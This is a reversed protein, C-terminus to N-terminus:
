AQRRGAKQRRLSGGHHKRVQPWFGICVQFPVQRPGANGAHPAVMRPHEQIAASLHNCTGANGARRGEQRLGQPPTDRHHAFHFHGVPVQAAGPTAPHQRHRAGIALAGGGVEGSVQQPSGPNGRHGAPVQAQGEQLGHLVSNWAGDEHHLQAAILQLGHLGELRIGGGEQVERLVVQRPVAGHVGVPARLQPDELPLTGAVQPHDGSGMRLPPLIGRASGGRGAEAPRGALSPTIRVAPQVEPVLGQQVPCVQADGTVVVHLVSQGRGQQGAM